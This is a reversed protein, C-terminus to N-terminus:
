ATTGKGTDGSPREGEDTGPKGDENVQRSKAGEDRGKDTGPSPQGSDQGGGPPNEKGAGEGEERKRGEEPPRTESAAETQGKQPPSGAEGKHGFIAAKEEAARESLVKALQDIGEPRKEKAKGQRKARVEADRAKDWRVAFFMIVVILATLVIITNGLVPRKDPEVKVLSKAVVVATKKWMNPLNTEYEWIKFFPGYVRVLDEEHIDDPPKETLIFTWFRFHKDVIQGQYVAKLGCPNQPVPSERLRALSGTVRVVNGVYKQPDDYVDEWEAKVDAKSKLEEQGHQMVYHALYFYPEWELSQTEHEIQGLVGPGYPFGGAVTAASPEPANFPLPDEKIGPVEAQTSRTDSVSTDKRVLTRAVYVMLCLAAVSFLILKITDARSNAGGALRSRRSQRPNMSGM